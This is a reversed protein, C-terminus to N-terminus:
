PSALLPGRAVKQVLTDGLLECCVAKAAPLISEEGITFPTELKAICNALLFPVRLASM